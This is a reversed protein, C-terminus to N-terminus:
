IPEEQLAKDVYDQVVNSKGLEPMCVNYLSCRKCRSSFKVKPTYHNDYYHHMEEFITNVRTRAEETFSVEERHKTDGYFLYGKRIETCLMEELCMAQAALQLRDADHEKPKGRKYEIPVVRYVGKHGKLSIGQTDAHFEVVDCEGSVGLKRSFVKMARTILVEGRKEQILPNHAKEHMIKGEYTRVNDEWQQEIHILAWQRRCFSFHQIGSLLLYDDECYEM